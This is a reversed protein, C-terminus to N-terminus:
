RVVGAPPAVPHHRAADQGTGEHRAPTASSAPTPSPTGHEPHGSLALERCAADTPHRMAPLVGQSPLGVPRPWRPHPHSETM